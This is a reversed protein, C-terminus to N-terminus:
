DLIKIEKELQIGRKDYVTNKIIEILDLVDKCTANGKNIVFGSHKESVQAGGVTKGKLGCEEILASAYGEKPRKFTSGASPYNLPQKEKRRNIIDDMSSKILNKDLSKLKFYGSTILLNNNSFVSKRYSFDCEYNNFTSINGDKDIYECKDLVDKIEGGYAGANMYIAGGVGGPIGFAFELGSLSHNLAFKCLKTLSLGCECKITTDNVLEIKNLNKTSILVKETGNDSCLINSGKGLIFYPLNHKIIYKFLIQCELIDKPEVILKANGGIEFTTLKSVPFDRFFKINNQNLFEIIQLLTM